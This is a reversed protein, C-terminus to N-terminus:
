HAAGDFANIATTIQAGRENVEGQPGGALAAQLTQKVEALLAEFHVQKAKLQNLDLESPAAHVESIAREVGVSVSTQVNDLQVSAAHMQEGLSQVKWTAFTAFAGMACLAVVAIALSSSLKTAVSLHRFNRGGALNDATINDAAMATSGVMKATASEPHRLENSSGPLM